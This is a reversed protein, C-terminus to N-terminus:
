SNAFIGSSKLDQLCFCFFGPDEKYHLFRLSTPLFPFMEHNSIGIQKSYRCSDSTGSLVWFYRSKRMLLVDVCMSLLTSMTLLSRVKLWNWSIERAEPQIGRLLIYADQNRVQCALSAHSRLVAQLKVCM